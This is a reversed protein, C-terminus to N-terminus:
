SSSRSRQVVRELVQLTLQSTRQWTYASVRQPGADVLRARLPEDLAVRRIAEYLATEDLPDFRLAADGCIDRLPEIDSCATPIGAALSEAVPIGFGEFLSPQISAHATRFLDLLDARPIWGTLTVCDELSLSRIEADLSAAYFGRMGAIVLRFERHENRFRAFARVLRDLNKHPHLTSVCLLFPISRDPQRSNGVAAMEDGAGLPVVSIRRPPVPYYTLLDRRTAESDAILGGSTVASFFLFFRWFPLDWWRFYEPHRKHQLDHFTTVTPCPSLSPGTFGPNLLVDLRHRAAAVPLITQEWMLRIPRVAARVPHPVTTFNPAAPTLDTGSERNTFVVFQHAGGIEAFGTLLGRLYIETGGVGGPIAYLANIGIRM